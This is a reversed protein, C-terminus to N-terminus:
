ALLTGDVDVAVIPVEISEEVTINIIDCVAVDVEASHPVVPSDHLFDMGWVANVADRERCDVADGKVGRFRHELAIHEVQGCLM